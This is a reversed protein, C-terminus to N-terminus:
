YDEAAALEFLRAQPPQAWGFRETVGRWMEALEGAFATALQPSDFELEIAILGPDDQARLVRYRRVGSRERELPDRDFAEHKWAEYDPVVHEIRVVSTGENTM